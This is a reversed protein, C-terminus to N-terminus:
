KRRKIVKAPNGVVVTYPEVPSVVVAGAGVISGEGIDNMVVAEAGIWCDNDIKVKRMKGGQLAMPIDTRDFNHYQSGSLLRCGDGILVYSGIKCHHFVNYMGIYCNDGIEIDRFCFVTGLGIIVNRGFCSLSLKHFEYRIVIGLLFPILSLLESFSRLLFDSTRAILAMPLIIPWTLFGIMRMLVISTKSKTFQQYTVERYNDTPFQINNKRFM